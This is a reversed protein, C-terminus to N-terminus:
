REKGEPNDRYPCSVPREAVHFSLCKAIKEEEAHAVKLKIYVEMGKVMKAFEWVEGPKDRDPKPGRWYDAVSLGLIEDTRNAKTLGLYALSQRNKLRELVYIGRAAAIEKFEELFRGIAERSAKGM